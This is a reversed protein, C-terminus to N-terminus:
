LAINIKNIWMPNSDYQKKVENYANISDIDRLDEISWTPPYNYMGIEQGQYLFANGDAYNPLCSADECGKGAM